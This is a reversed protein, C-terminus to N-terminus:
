WVETLANSPYYYDYKRVLWSIMDYKKRRGFGTSGSGTLAFCLCPMIILMVGPSYPCLYYNWNSDDNSIIKPAGRLRTSGPQSTFFVESFFRRRLWTVLSGHSVRTVCVTQLRSPGLSRTGGCGSGPSPKLLDHGTRTAPLHCYGSTDSPNYVLAWLEGRLM